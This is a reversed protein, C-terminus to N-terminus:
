QHKKQHTQMQDKYEDKLVFGLEKAYKLITPRSLQLLAMADVVDVVKGSNFAQELQFKREDKGMASFLGMDSTSQKRM